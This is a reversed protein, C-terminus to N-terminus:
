RNYHRDRLYIKEQGTNTVIGKGAPPATEKTIGQVSDPDPSQSGRVVANEGSKLILVQGPYNKNWVRVTGEKLNVVTERKVPDVTLSFTTGTVQIVANVTNIRVGGFSKRIKFDASGNELSLALRTSKVAEYRFRANANLHISYDGKREILVNSREPVIIESKGNLVRSGQYDANGIRISGTATLVAKKAFMGPAIFFVVFLVAATAFGWSLVVFPNPKRARSSEFAERMDALIHTDLAQGAHVNEDMIRHGHIGSRILDLDSSCGECDQVHTEWEKKGPDQMLNYASELNKMAKNKIMDIVVQIV